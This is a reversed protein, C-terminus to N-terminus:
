FVSHCYIAEVYEKGFKSGTQREMDLELMQKKVQMCIEWSAPWTTQYEWRKFFKGTQQSRCLWLSQHLWYLLLLHKEPIRTKTQSGVLTPLQIQPEEAKELGLKFMQFNMAWTSSFGPKSFKSCKSAHSILAITHYNSCEKANGKKPIPIFVSRKWNEITPYRYAFIHAQIM